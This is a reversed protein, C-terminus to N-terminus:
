KPPICSPKGLPIPCFGWRQQRIHPLLPCPTKGKMAGKPHAHLKDMLTMLTPHLAEPVHRCLAGPLLWRTGPHDHHRMRRDPDSVEYLGSKQLRKFSSLKNQGKIYAIHCIVGEVHSGCQTSVSGCHLPPRPSGLSARRRWAQEGVPRTYSAAVSQCIPSPNPFGKGERRIDAKEDWPNPLYIIGHSLLGFEAPSLPFSDFRSPILESAYFPIWSQALVRHLRM